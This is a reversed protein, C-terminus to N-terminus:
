GEGVILANEGFEIQSQSEVREALDVAASAEYLVRQAERQLAFVNRRDCQRAV